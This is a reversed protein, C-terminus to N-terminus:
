EATDPSLDFDEGTQAKLLLEIKEEVPNDQQIWPCYKYFAAGAAMILPILMWKLLPKALILKIDIM